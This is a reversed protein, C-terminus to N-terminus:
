WNRWIASEVVIFESNRITAWVYIHTQYDLRFLAEMEPSHELHMMYTFAKNHVDYGSNEREIKYVGLSSM